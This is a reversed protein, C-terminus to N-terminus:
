LFAQLTKTNKPRQMNMLKELNKDLVKIEDKSIEHGLYEIKTQAFTCKSLKLKWNFKRLKDFVEKINEIHQKFTKSFICIDDIYVLCRQFLCDDLTENIARQFVSPANTFGFPMVKWQYTGFTTCFALKEKDEEAVPIQWFGSSADVVTDKSCHNLNNLM